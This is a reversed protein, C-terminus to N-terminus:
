RVYGKFGLVHYVWLRRELDRYVGVHIVAVLRASTFRGLVEPGLRHRSVFLFEGGPHQAIDDYLDYQDHWRRSPNWARVSPWSGPTRTYYGLLALVKRSDSLLSARPFRRRIPLLQGGLERWGLRKFYPDTKRTLQVDLVDALAHYHYLGSLLLLHLILSAVLVLRARELLRHAVVLVLGIYAPSAWNLNAENHWAQIGALLLLPLSALLLLRDNRDRWVATRGLWWLLGASLLPGFAGLQGLLFQGLNGWAGARPIEVTIHWIHGFTVWDHRALWALNPSWVLVALALGAWLRPSRLLGRWAPEALLALLLGIALVGITYKSLLGLGATLGTLLWWRLEDGEVARVLGYLTLAWFLMLPADTSTFLSLVGVIPLSQFLLAAWAGVRAGYLRTGLVLVVLATASYLLVALSKIALPDDGLVQAVGALMWTLLPPKSYYGAELHAAWSFYYAEEADLPIDGLAIVLLRYLALLWVGWWAIRWWFADARRPM